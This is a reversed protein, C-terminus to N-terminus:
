RVYNRGDLADAIARFDYGQKAYSQALEALVIALKYSQLRRRAQVLDHQGIAAFSVEFVPRGQSDIDGHVEATEGFLYSDGNVPGIEARFFWDNAHTRTVYDNSM